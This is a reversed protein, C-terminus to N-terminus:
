TIFFSPPHLKAKTLVVRLNTIGERNLELAAITARGVPSLGIIQIYENGWAFHDVWRHNRPHYIPVIVGSAPDVASTRTYKRNNCGQCAFALNSKTDEGGKSRPLIHELSFPDPSFREQSFCYECCYDAREAVIKRLSVAM